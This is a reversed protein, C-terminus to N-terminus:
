FRLGLTVDIGDAAFSSGPADTSTGDSAMRYVADLTLQRGRLTHTFGAGLVLALDYGGPERDIEVGDETVPRTLDLGDEEVEYALVLGLSPGAILTLPLKEHWPGNYRLLLPLELYDRQLVLEDAEDQTNDLSSPLDHYIGGRRVFVLAPQFVLSPSLAIDAFSGIVIGTNAESSGYGPGDLRMHSATAGIRIGIGEFTAAGAATAAVALVTSLAVAM